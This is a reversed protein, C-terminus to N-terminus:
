APDTFVLCSLPMKGSTECYTELEYHRYTTWDDSPIRDKAHNQCGTDFEIILKRVHSQSQHSGPSTFDVLWSSLEGTEREGFSHVLTTIGSAEVKTNVAPSLLSGVHRHRVM